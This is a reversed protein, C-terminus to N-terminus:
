NDISQPVTISIFSLDLLSLHKWFYYAPSQLHQDLTTIAIIILNGALALLYMLLFLLACLIQLERNNSFGM